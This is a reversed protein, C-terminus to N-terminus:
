KPSLPSFNSAQGSRRASVEKWWALVEARAADSVFRQGPCGLHILLQLGFPQIGFASTSVGQRKLLMAAATAGLEPYYQLEPVDQDRPGPPQPIVLPDTRTILEGLWDDVESWPDRAAIALLAIWPMNCPGDMTPSLFRQQEVARTLGEVASSTGGQALVLCLTGHLSLRGAPVPLTADTLPQDDVAAFYAGAFQSVQEADLQMLMLAERQTLPRQAALMHSVTRRTLDGLRESEDLQRYYEYVLRRRPTPLNVLHFFAEDQQPHPFAVGVPYEGPSLSNGSVCHAVRDDIRDFHSARQGGEPVNPVDVLLYQVGLHRSRPPQTPDAAQWYEAIMAPEVWHLVREIRERVAPPLAPDELRPELAKRVREVYEDRALLDVLEQEALEVQRARPVDPATVPPQCLTEVLQALEENSREPQQWTAPDSMLWARRATEILREIQRLAVDSAEARARHAKLAALVQGNHSPQLALWELREVVGIRTAYSDDDLQVILENLEDRTVDVEQPSPVVVRPLRAVLPTVHLRVEFSTQPDILVQRLARSVIAPDDTRQIWDELDEAARQRVDFREDDLRVLIENLQGAPSSVDDGRAQSAGLSALGLPVFLLFYWRLKFLAPM